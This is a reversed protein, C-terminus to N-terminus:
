FEGEVYDDFHYFEANELFTEAQAVFDRLGQVLMLHKNEEEALRMLLAKRETDQVEQAKGLYYQKAAAEIDCAKQYLDVESVDFEFTEGSDKMKSFVEKAHKLVPTQTIQIPTQARIAEIVRCHHVEEDALMGLVNKLGANDTKEALQRYYQEANREKKLAFEFIDM